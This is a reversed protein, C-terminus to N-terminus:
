TLPAPGGGEAPGARPPPSAGDQGAGTPYRGVGTEARDSGRERGLDPRVAGLREAGGARVRRWWWACHSSPEAPRVSRAAALAAATRRGAALHCPLAAVRWVPPVRGVGAPLHYTHSRSPVYEPDPRLLYSHALSRSRGTGLWACSNASM